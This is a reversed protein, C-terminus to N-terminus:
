SCGTRFLESVSNCGSAFLTGYSVVDSLKSNEKREWGDFFIWFSTCTLGVVRRSIGWTQLRPFVRLAPDVSHQVEEVM